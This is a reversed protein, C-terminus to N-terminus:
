LVPNFNLKLEKAIQSIWGKMYSKYEIPQTPIHKYRGIRFFEKILVDKPMIFAATLYNTQSEVIELPNMYKNWYTKEFSNNLCIQM